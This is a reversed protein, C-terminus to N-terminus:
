ETKYKKLASIMADDIIKFAGEEMDYFLDNKKLKKDSWANYLEDDSNYKKFVPNKELEANIHEGFGM